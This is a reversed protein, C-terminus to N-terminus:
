SCCTHPSIGITLKFGAPSLDWDHRNCRKSVLNTLTPRSVRFTLPVLEPAPSQVSSFPPPLHLMRMLRERSELRSLTALLRVECQQAKGVVVSLVEATPQFLGEKEVDHKDYYCPFCSICCALILM